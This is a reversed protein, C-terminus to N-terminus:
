NENMTYMKQKYSVKTVLSVDICDKSKIKNNAENDELGRRCRFCLSENFLILFTLLFFIIAALWKGMDSTQSDNEDHAITGSFDINRSNTFNSSIHTAAM